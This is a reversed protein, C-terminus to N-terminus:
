LILKHEELLSLIESELLNVKIKKKNSKLGFVITTEAKFFKTLEKTIENNAKNDQPKKTSKVILLKKEKDFEVTFEKKGTLVKADIITEM